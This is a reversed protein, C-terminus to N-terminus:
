GRPWHCRVEYAHINPDPTVLTLGHTKAQAVLLRDFPDRHLLPLRELGLITATDHPWLEIMHKRALPLILASPPRPLSLKGLQHKIVIELLSVDSFFVENALDTLETRLRPGIRDSGEFTWLLVCTDVLFRV